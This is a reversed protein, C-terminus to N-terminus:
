WDHSKERWIIRTKNRVVDISTGVAYLLKKDVLESVDCAKYAECLPKGHVRPITGVPKAYYESDVCVTCSLGHGDKQWFPKFQPELMFYVGDHSAKLGTHSKRSEIKAMTETISSVAGLAIYSTLSWDAGSTEPHFYLNM